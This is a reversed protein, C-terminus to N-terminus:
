LIAHSRSPKTSSSRATLDILSKELDQRRPNPSGDRGLAKGNERMPSSGGDRVAHTLEPGTFGLATMTTPHQHSQRSISSAVNLAAKTSNASAALGGDTVNCKGAEFDSWIAVPIALVNHQM